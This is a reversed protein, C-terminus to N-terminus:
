KLLEEIQGIVTEGQSEKPIMKMLASGRGADLKHCLLWVLDPDASSLGIALRALGRKHLLQKFETETGSWRDLGLRPLPKLDSPVSIKSVLKREEESLFSYLKKLNKTELIQRFEYSLDYLALSNILGLLEKKGFSLLRKLTSPPLFEAPLAPERLKNRLFELMVDPLKEKSRQVSLSEELRKSDHENFCLLFLSQEKPSYEKLVPVFWSWHVEPVTPEGNAAYPPLEGLLKREHEPLFRELEERNPSSSLYAKLVKTSRINM